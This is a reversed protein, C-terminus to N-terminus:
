FQKLSWGLTNRICYKKKIVSVFLSFCQAMTELCHDLCVKKILIKILM